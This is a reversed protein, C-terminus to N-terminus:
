KILKKFTEIIKKLGLTLFDLFLWFAISIFILFFQLEFM